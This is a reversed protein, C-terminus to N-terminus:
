ILDQLMRWDYRGSSSHICPPVPPPALALPRTRMAALACYPVRLLNGSVAYRAAAAGAAARLRGLAVVMVDLTAAHGVFIVNGGEAETDRLASQMVKENREYFDEITENSVTDVEVYPKYKLDVNYGAVHLELPTMFPAMGKAMHWMKCEFLGPEVKIKISPDAQMGELLHHATEVCRLAASAYVHAVPVRADRLAEGVLSAQLRGVRTLPTDRAYSEAGGARKGLKVPMNLDKRVYNGHSDFCFNTWPGYTLDVREGHRMAFIWRRDKDESNTTTGQRSENDVASYGNDDLPQWDMSPGQTINLIGESGNNKVTTWYKEWEKFSEESKDRGLDEADEHPYSRTSMKKTVFNGLPVVEHLTWADSEATRVTNAGLLRGSVGTLWSTGRVWGDASSDFLKEEIYILDGVVLELEDSSKPTYDQIVKYVKHKAFHPDTSYLRAEWGSEVNLDLKEVLAKLPEFATEEFHFALTLHSSKLKDELNTQLLNSVQKIFQKALSKFFKDYEESAFLGMFNPSIYPELHLPTSPAAGVNCRTQKLANGIHYSLEDPANFFAVLTIHPPFNHAGNWGCTNQSKQWFETLRMLLPGTPHAYLTYERPVCEDIHPDNTHALLWDAALQVGNDGTATLAKLARNKPYGMNMLKELPYRRSKKRAPVTAMKLSKSSINCVVRHM